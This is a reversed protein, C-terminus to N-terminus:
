AHALMLCYGDPDALAFEGRPSYPPYRLPGVPLGGAGLAAHVGAIGDYYLYFLVAQEAPDVPGDARTVMLRAEGAGLMAWVPADAFPPTHTNQVAFGLRAYFAVSRAVDAVHAM